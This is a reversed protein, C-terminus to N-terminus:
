WRPSEWNTIANSVAEETELAERLEELCEVWISDLIRDFNAKLLNTNLVLLNSDLYELLDGIAQFLFFHNMNNLQDFPIKGQM